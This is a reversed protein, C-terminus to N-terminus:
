KKNDLSAECQNLHITKLDEPLTSAEIWKKAKAPECKSWYSLTESINFERRDQDQISNTLTLLEEFNVFTDYASAAAASVMSMIATDKAHGEPLRSIAARLEPDRYADNRIIRGINEGAVEESTSDVLWELALSPNKDALSRALTFAVSERTQKDLKHFEEMAKEPNLTGLKGLAFTRARNRQKEPLSDMWLSATEWDLAAWRPALKEYLNSDEWDGAQLQGAYRSLQEPHTDAIGLLLGPLVAAREEGNLSSLWQMAKEPAARGMGRAISQLDIKSEEFDNRHEAFYAAAMEPNYEAWGRIIDHIIDADPPPNMSKLLELTQRPAVQGCKRSLYVLAVPSDMDGNQIRSDKNLKLLEQQLQEPTMRSYRVLRADLSYAAFDLGAKKDEPDLALQRKKFTFRPARRSIDAASTKEADTPEDKERASRTLYGSAFALSLLLVGAVLQFKKSM